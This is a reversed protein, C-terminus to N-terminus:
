KLSLLTLVLFWVWLVAIISFRNSFPTNLSSSSNIVFELFSIFHVTLWLLSKFSIFFIKICTFTNFIFLFIFLVLISLFTNAFLTSSHVRSTLWHLCSHFSRVYPQLPLDLFTLTSAVYYYVTQLIRPSLFHHSLWHFIHSFFALYWYLYLFFISLLLFLWCFLFQM